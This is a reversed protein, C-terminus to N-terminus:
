LYPEIEKYYMEFLADTEEDSVYEPHRCYGTSIVGRRALIKKEFHIIMDVDQRIHNLIPLLANHLAVAKERDGGDLIVYTLMPCVGMQEAARHAEEPWWYQDNFTTSGSKIMELCAVKTGWYIFEEDIRAEIDWIRSLWQQLPVDETIGRLLAMAAHTHMNIFGPIVAKGTCDVTEDARLSETEPFPLIRRIRNGDIFLNVPSSDLLINRLLIM